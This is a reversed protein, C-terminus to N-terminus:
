SSLRRKSVAQACVCQPRKYIIPPPGSLLGDPLREKQCAAKKRIKFRGAVSDYRMRIAQQRLPFEEGGAM